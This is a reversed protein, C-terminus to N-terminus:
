EVESHFLRSDLLLDYYINWKEGVVDAIRMVCTGVDLDCNSVAFCTVM